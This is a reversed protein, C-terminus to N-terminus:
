DISDFSEVFSMKGLNLTHILDFNKIIQHSFLDLLCHDIIFIYKQVFIGSFVLPSLLSYVNSFVLNPLLKLLLLFVIVGLAHDM